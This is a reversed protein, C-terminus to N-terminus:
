ADRRRRLLLALFSALGTALAAPVVKHLLDHGFLEMGIADFAVTVLLGFLPDILLPVLLFLPVLLPRRARACLFLFLAFLAAYVVLHSSSMSYQSRQDVWFLTTVLVLVSACSILRPLMDETKGFWSHLGLSVFSAAVLAPVATTFSGHALGWSHYVPLNAVGYIAALPVLLLLGVVISAVIRLATRM